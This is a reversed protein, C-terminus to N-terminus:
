LYRIVTIEFCLFYYTIWLGNSRIDPRNHILINGYEKVPVFRWVIPKIELKIQRLKNM